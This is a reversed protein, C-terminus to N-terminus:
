LLVVSGDYQWVLNWLCLRVTLIGHRVQHFRAGSPFQWRCVRDSMFLPCCRIIGGAYKM